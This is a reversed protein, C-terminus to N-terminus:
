IKRWATSIDSEDIKEMIGRLTATFLIPEMWHAYKGSDHVILIGGKKLKPYCLNFARKLGEFTHDADFFLLSITDDEILNIKQSTIGNFLHINEYESLSEKIEQYTRPHKLLHEKYHIRSAEYPIKDVNEFVDITYVMKMHKSLIIASRGLFTGLELAVSNLGDKSAEKAMRILLEEDAKTIEGYPLESM